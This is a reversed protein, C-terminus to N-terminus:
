VSFREKVMIRMGNSCVKSSCGDTGGITKNSWKAVELTPIGYLYSKKLLLIKIRECYISLEGYHLYPPEFLSYSYTRIYFFVIFFKKKVRELRLASWNLRRLISHECQKCVYM